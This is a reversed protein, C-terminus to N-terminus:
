PIYKKSIDVMDDKTPLKKQNIWEIVTGESDVILLTPYSQINYKKAIQIGEGKEADYKLNLFAKNMYIGVQEDTLVNKTFALCPACWATYFDIFIPKGTKKSKRLTKKFSDKEFHVSTEINDFVTRKDKVLEQFNIASYSVFLFAVFGVSFLFRQLFKKNIFIIFGMFITITFAVWGYIQPIVFILYVSFLFATLVVIKLFGNKKLLNM